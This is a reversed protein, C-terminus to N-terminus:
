RTETVTITTSADFGYVKLAGCGYVGSDYAVTTSAAQYHGFVGSPTAENFSSFTIMIPKAVTTIVRASCTSTAFVTQATTGVVIGAPSSTAVTAQLGSPASGYAPFTSVGILYAVGLLALM